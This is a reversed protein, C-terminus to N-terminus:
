HYNNSMGTRLLQTVAKEASPRSNKENDCVSGALFFFNFSGDYMKEVVIKVSLRCIYTSNQGDKLGRFDYV